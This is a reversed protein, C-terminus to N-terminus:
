QSQSSTYELDDFYIFQYNGDIRTTVIGFRNFRATPLQHRDTLELHQSKGDLSVTMAGEQGDKKPEFRVEWQHPRGDPLIIPGEAFAYEDNGTSCAPRFYFGQSSPGEVM